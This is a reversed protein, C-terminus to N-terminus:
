RRAGMLRVALPRDVYTSRGAARREDEGREGARVKRACFIPDDRRDPM